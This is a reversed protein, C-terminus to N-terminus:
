EPIRFHFQNYFAYSCFRQFGGSQHDRDAFTAFQTVRGACEILEAATRDTGYELAAVEGALGALGQQQVAQGVELGFAHQQDTGALVVFQTIAGPALQGGRYQVYEFAQTAAIRHQREIFQRDLTAFGIVLRAQQGFGQHVTFVREITELALLGVGAGQFLDGQQRGLGILRVDLARDFMRSGNCVAHAESAIQAVQRRVDAVGAEEGVLGLGQGLGVLVELDLHQVLFLELFQAHTGEQGHALAACM